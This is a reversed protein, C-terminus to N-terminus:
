CAGPTLKFVGIDHGGVTANFSGTFTGVNAAPAFLTRVCFTTGEGVDAVGLASFPAAIDAPEDGANLLGLVFAGGQLPGGWVEITGSDSPANRVSLVHALCHHQWTPTRASLVYCDGDTCHNISAVYTAQSIFGDM